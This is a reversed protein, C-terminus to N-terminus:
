VSGELRVTASSLSQNAKRRRTKVLPLSSPFKRIAVQLLALYGEGDDCSGRASIDATM